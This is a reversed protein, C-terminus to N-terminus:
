HQLRRRRRQHSFMWLGSLALLVLALGLVDVFYPGWTGLFRGSHLDLLLREVSIGPQLLPEILQRQAASLPASTSWLVTAACPQWTAGDSSVFSHQGDGIVVGSCGSGIRAIMAVPLLAAQITDISEGESNLIQLQMASAVFLMANNEVMGLPQLAQATVIKGDLLLAEPTAALWHSATPWIRDPLASKIGYRQMIWGAHVNNRALNLAGTHNLLWGSVAMWILFLSAAVGVRRHWRHLRVSLKRRRTTSVTLRTM